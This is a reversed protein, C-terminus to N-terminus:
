PHRKKDHDLDNKEEKEKHLSDEESLLVTDLRNIGFALEKNRIFNMFGAMQAQVAEMVPAKTQITVNFLKPATTFEEITIKSGYLPSNRLTLSRLTITTKTCAETHMITMESCMTDFIKLTEQTISSVPTAATCGQSYTEHRLFPSLPEVATFIPDEETRLKKGNKAEQLDTAIRKKCLLLLKKLIEPANEVKKSFPKVEKPKEESPTLISSPTTSKTTPQM